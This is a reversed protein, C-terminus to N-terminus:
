DPLDIIGLIEDVFKPEVVCNMCFLIDFLIKNLLIFFLIMDATNEIRLQLHVIKLLMRSSRTDGQMNFQLLLDLLFLIYFYMINMNILVRYVLKVLPRLSCNLREKVLQLPKFLYLLIPFSKLTEHLICDELFSHTLWKSHVWFLKNKFFIKMLSLADFHSLFEQFDQM